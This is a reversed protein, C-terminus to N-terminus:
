NQGGGQDGTNAAAPKGDRIRVVFDNTGAFTGIPACEELSVAELSVAAMSGPRDKGTSELNMEVMDM